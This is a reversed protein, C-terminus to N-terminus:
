VHFDTICYLLMLTRELVLLILILDWRTNGSFGVDARRTSQMGAGLVVLREIKCASYKAEVCDM